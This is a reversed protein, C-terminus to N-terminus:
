EGPHVGELTPEVFECDLDLRAKILFERAQYQQTSTAGSSRPMVRTFLPHETLARTLTIVTEQDPALGALTVELWAPNDADSPAAPTDGEASVPAPDRRHAIVQLGTLKIAEPAVQAITAIVQAATLPPSIERVIEHRARTLETQSQVSLAEQKAQEVERTQANLQEARQALAESRDGLLWAGALALLTIAIAVINVPRRKVRQSQAVYHDPLFNIPNM